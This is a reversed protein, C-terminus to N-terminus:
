PEVEFSELAAQIVPDENQIIQDWRAEIQVEPQIGEVGIEAGDPLRFSASAIFIQSGDPLLYGSLTEINGSTNSGIVSARGNAQMAAAFVEPLGRTNEGVLIVLPMAQSGFMDQGDLELPQSGDRGYVEGITGNQFLTLLNELPWGAAANSIRLDLILGKFERSSSFDALALQFEEAMGAYASPPFLVYGVNTDAFEDVKLTGTGTLQARTIKVDRTTKGPTQVTLVTSTGATGRIRQVADLGEELLIPDGDIALISDHAQLGADEAPSDPMVDLIVVHPVEQEQFGVFAGIGGYSTTDALDIDIRESRSQFVIENEPLDTELENLLSAFEKSTLGQDIREVYDERLADWNMDATEYHVYNQEVLDWLTTFVLQQHQQQSVQPGLPIATSKQGDNLAPLGMCSSFLLTLVPFLIFHFSIHKAKTM